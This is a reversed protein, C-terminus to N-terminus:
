WKDVGFQDVSEAEGHLKECVIEETVKWRNIWNMDLKEINECGCVRAYEQATSLSYFKAHSSAKCRQVLRM